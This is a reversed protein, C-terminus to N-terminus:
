SPLSPFKRRQHVVGPERPAVEVLRGRVSKCALLQLPPIAELPPEVEGAEGGSLRASRTTGTPHFKQEHRVSTAGESGCVPLQVGFAVPLHMKSPPRVLGTARVVDTTAGGSDGGHVLVDVTVRPNAELAPPHEEEYSWKLPTGASPARDNMDDFRETRAPAIGGQPLSEALARRQGRWSAHTPRLPPRAPHVPCVQSRVEEEAGTAGAGNKAASRSEEEVVPLLWPQLLLSPAVPPPRWRRSSPSAEQVLGYPL